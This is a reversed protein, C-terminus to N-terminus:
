NGVNALVDSNNFRIGTDCLYDAEMKNGEEADSKKVFLMLSLHLQLLVHKSVMVTGNM